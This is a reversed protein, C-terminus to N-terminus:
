EGTVPRTGLSQSLRLLYGDPDMVIFQRVGLLLADRRYWKEEMELFIEAGQRKCADHLIDADEVGIELNIGRGYPFELEAAVWDRAGTASRQDIMLQAGNRNLFAFGEEPRGYLQKFGIVETYFKLSQAFNSVILEPVLMAMDDMGKEDLGKDDVDKGSV